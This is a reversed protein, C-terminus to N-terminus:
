ASNRSANINGFLARTVIKQYIEEDIGQEIKQLAYQQIVLLPLIIKERMAISIKNIPADEMLTQMGSIDLLMQKSLLFEQHLIEWFDGFEPDKKMYYTLPFYTKSLSMMSNQLLTRFFASNQYLVILEEKKGQNVLQLLATGFGFYGPVNQKLLAWSGVFPIARLDSFDLKQTKSRKTPRSGIKTNGYYKLTSKQELYPVFKPHQKLNEYKINSLEALTKLLKKDNTSTNSIPKIINELGATFLQTINFNSQAISGYMSSITQGQITLQIEHNEITNEQSAYFQHTKGGGRAPPGGRGDFFVVKINHNRAVKTLIEKTEYIGINAKLYGGDKTGDSFGLMITQHLNRHKLHNIYLPNIYLSEMTEAANELGDITEFLPVIDINIECPQYGCIKFLFLVELVQLDSTSNSIIYRHISKLGNKQQIEKIQIINKLTDNTISNEFNFNSIVNFDQKLFKKKQHYDMSFYDNLQYYKSIDNLVLQHMSSDQRIDLSAFHVGFITVKQFMEDIMEVFLGNNNKLIFNRLSTLQELIEDQTLGNELGFMNNYVSKSLNQLLPFVQKFTIKRMLLKLDNYYCKMISFRLNEIVSKTIDATVYPNGDRDGGPWFGLEINLSNNGFGFMTNIKSQVEFVSYYYVHRMFYMITMAEDYPTPISANLFPTQGLQQLLLDVENINNEKIAHQLSNLIRLVNNPYFQTPHATFVLRIKYTKLKEQITNLQNNNISLQHLYGVSGTGEFNNLKEFASDEISDFLVVQRELYQIIRFIFDQKETESFIQLHSNFFDELIHLPSLNNELGKKSKEYLFPIITAINEMKEYPLSTFLSNFVQYKSGVEKLYLKEYNM